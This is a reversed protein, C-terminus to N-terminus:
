YYKANSQNITDQQHSVYKLDLSPNGDAHIVQIAPELLNRTGSSTYASSYLGSYDGNRQKADFSPISAYDENNRFRKGLYIM